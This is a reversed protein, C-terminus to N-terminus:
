KIKLAHASAAPIAPPTKKTKKASAKIGAGSENLKMAEKIYALMKKDSPIDQLGTIKGLHGMAEESEAKRSLSKDKMLAAKRFSFACHSKFAAMSCMMGNAYDFHPFGWRIKEATGPCAEHVLARLHKLVPQAFPASKEIYADTENQKKMEMDTTSPRKLGPLRISFSLVNPNM